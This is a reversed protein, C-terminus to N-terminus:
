RLLKILTPNGASTVDCQIPNVSRRLSETYTSRTFANQPSTLWGTPKQTYGSHIGKWYHVFYNKWCSNRAVSKQIGTREIWKNLHTIKSSPCKVLYTYAIRKLHLLVNVVTRSVASNAVSLIKFILWYSAFHYGEKSATYLCYCSATPPPLSKEPAAVQLVSRFMRTTKSEPMNARNHSFMDDDVFGSICLANSCQRGFLVSGRDCTVDASFETFNPCSTESIRSRVPLCVFLCVCVCQDCYKAGKGPSLTVVM